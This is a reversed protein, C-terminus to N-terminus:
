ADEVLKEADRLRIQGSMLKPLLTDRLEALTQNQEVNAVVKEYLPRVTKDFETIVEDSPVNVSLPKFNKKSIEQFTTGSANQKIVNMNQYTWFLVYLNSLRNDCKMAIFGQNVATAVEAIALYGVPARSSLLVTGVPLLGSSIKSLGADTIKRGTGLLVPSVLPSLDKPTTWHHQGGEWFDPNKTSPTGGGVVSVEEGITSEGWGEPLGDDNFAAPFLAATEPSMHAPAQNNAKAQVPDFDVFWSKFVARAMEELTENMQRNFQIKDDLSAFFSGISSREDASFNPLEFEELSQWSVRQRGSTGSMRKEAYKRFEALRSIYYIFHSDSSKKARFVIFETSGHAVIGEKLNSVYGGKGNELCPTIRAFLTDHKIFKSGSGSFKKETITAIFRDSIPLAAMDIHPALTGKPLTTRPNFDIIENLLM